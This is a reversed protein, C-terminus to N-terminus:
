SSVEMTKRWALWGAVAMALYVGYLLAYLNLGKVLYLAVAAVDVVFWVAWNELQKHAMMWMAAFSLVTTGSDWYAFDADTWTSLAAGMAVIGVASLVALAIGHRWPTRCVRLVDGESRDGGFLWYWWGYLNMGVYFLHLILDAYLKAEAFVVVSVMAYALGIPWNWINQRILLWVALLGTVLGAAQFWDLALLPFQQVLFDM